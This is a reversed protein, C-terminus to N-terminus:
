SCKRKSVLDGKVAINFASEADDASQDASLGAARADKETDPHFHCGILNVSPMMELPKANVEAAVAEGGKQGLPNNQLTLVELSGCNERLGKAIRVAAAPGAGCSGVHLQRLCTNKSMADALVAVGESGLGNWSLDLEQLTTNVALAEAIPKINVTTMRNWSLDVCM